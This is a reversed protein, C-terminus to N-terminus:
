VERGEVLACVINRMVAASREPSGPGSDSQVLALPTRSCMVEFVSPHPVLSVMCSLLCTHSLHLLIFAPPGPSPGQHVGVDAVMSSSLM